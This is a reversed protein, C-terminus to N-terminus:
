IIKTYTEFTFSFQHKEDKEHFQSSVLEWKTLDITPFFADADFDGHVRTLEICNAINISQKYIEGGGIIFITKNKPCIDIAKEISDVVFCDEPLSYNKNRTIVIHTRNPLPKPFSEFTKRGMIIHHGSTIAKFRKFDDPLHWIIQNDKGLENNKGAAAIITIM